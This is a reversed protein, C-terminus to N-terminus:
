QLNKSYTNVKIEDTELRIAQNKIEVGRKDIAKAFEGLMLMSTAFNSRTLQEINIGVPVYVGTDKLSSVVDGYVRLANVVSRKPADFSDSGKLIYNKANNPLEVGLFDLLNLDIASRLPAFSLIVTAPSVKAISCQREYELIVNIIQSSDFLIQTTFFQAGSITKFLMRKAEDNREPLSINGVTVDEILGLGVLHRAILNAESVSPGPFRHHRTNGGVFIMNRIGMSYTEEIWGSFSEFNQMHAVVKNILADKQVLDAIGRSLARTYVSNYRPKGEHNEEILEPVSVANLRHIKSLESALEEKKKNLAQVIKEDHTSEGTLNNRLPLATFVLPRKQLQTKFSKESNPM